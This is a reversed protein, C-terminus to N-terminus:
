APLCTTAAVEDAAIMKWIAPSEMSSPGSPYSGALVTALLGKKALDIGKIGYMDGAAIPLFATLGRPRGEAAFREGIAALM